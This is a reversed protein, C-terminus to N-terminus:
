GDALDREFLRFRALYFEDPGTGSHLSIILFLCLGVYRWSHSYLCLWRWHKQRLNFLDSIIQAM